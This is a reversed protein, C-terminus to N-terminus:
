SPDDGATLLAGLRFRDTKGNTSVPLRTLYRFRAPVMYAPLRRRLHGALEPEAAPRGTYCARLEARGGGAEVALVAADEVGPLERLACEIEAPEVRHGAIKVQEDARGLHVLQGDQWSVRDGTRYWDSPRLPAAPPPVTGAGDRLFWGHNDAPDLYGDFRQSGRVCLEGERGDTGNGTMVRADLHPYPRGIPVTGNSTRPWDTVRAPLRYSTCTITLETPGYLNEIVAGPAASSWARAQDLTLQEGAFLSSRLGPMSGAPLGRLQRALSIVSPVSFWHSIGARRVFRAPVLLEDPQPVVVAAGASWAVFMDFVSPDFTLDFTQSLRSDPGIAYREACYGLYDALQRPGIPVGKPRGTSGSTFLIYAIEGTRVPGPGAVPELGPAGSPGPNRRWWHSGAMQAVVPVPLDQRAGPGTVSADAIVATVGAARCIEQNRAAPFAPNLPVVAAGCRSTALYGAYATVSRSCYLGVAGPVAGAARTLIAAGSSAAEELAAYTLRDHGVELATRDPFQRASREFWHYLGADAASAGSM